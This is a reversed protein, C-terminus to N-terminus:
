CLAMLGLGIGSAMLFFTITSLTSTRQSTWRLSHLLRGLTMRLLLIIQIKLLATETSHLRRYISQNVNSFGKSDIYSNLKQLMDSNVFDRGPHLPAMKRKIPAQKDLINCLTNFYQYVPQGILINALM